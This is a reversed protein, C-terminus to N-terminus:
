FIIKRRMFLPASLMMLWLLSVSGGGGGSNNTTTSTNTNAETTSTFTSSVIGVILTTVTDTLESNSSTHRVCVYQGDVITSVTSTWALISEDCSNTSSISYEGNNVSIDANTNIGTILVPNSDISTSLAADLVQIFSFADPTIDTMQTDRVLWSGINDLATVNSLSFSSRQDTYLVLETSVYMTAGTIYHATTNVPTGTLGRAAIGSGVWTDGVLSVMYYLADFNQQTPPSETRQDLDLGFKSFITKTENVTAYRWGEFEGGNGLQTLVDNYSRNITATLNLWELGTASDRMILSDGVTNLDSLSFDANFNDITSEFIYVAGSNIGTGDDIYHSGLVITDDSIVVLTGIQDLAAPDSALLKTPFEGWNNVGGLDRQFIYSSGQANATVDVGIAGIVIKDQDIDVSRGFRDDAIGDSAMLKTLQGWNNAGGLDREFIYAAGTDLGNEDNFLAGVVITNTDISVSNGFVDDAAGDNPLLKTLQGWNNAGGLDREFVYAAGTDSGNEDNFPAGVVITNIDISVSYGFLDDAAGDNPLLKTLQGWNNLGGQDRQFIYASGSQNGNDDDAIVGIVVSDSSIAVTYGFGDEIAPDSAVLKSVQGWNNVGGQDRQFIYAAGANLGGAAAGAAGIVISDGNIAVSRGFFDLTVGDDALLKTVQGWSNLGGQNRQFIYASGARVGNVNDDYRSGVVVTDGSIDVAYGFEDGAAIDNATRKIENSFLPDIILPYTAHTDNVSLTLKNTEEDFLMRSPIKKGEADFAVLQSYTFQTQKNKNKFQLSNNILKTQYESNLTLSLKLDDTGEPKNSITFGQELGLPSNIFWHNITNSKNLEHQYSVMVGDIIPEVSKVNQSDKGRGVSDLRLSLKNDNISLTVDQKNFIAKIKHKRNTVVLGHSAISPGYLQSEDNALQEALVPMLGVPLSDLSQKAHISSSILSIFISSIVISFKKFDM